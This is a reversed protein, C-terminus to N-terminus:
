GCASVLPSPQRLAAPRGLGWAPRPKVTFGSLFKAGEGVQHIAKPIGTARFSASSTQHSLPPTHACLSSSVSSHVFVRCYLRSRHEIAVPRGCRALTATGAARSRCKAAPAAVWMLENRSGAGLGGPRRTQGPAASLVVFNKERDARQCARTARHTDPLSWAGMWHTMVSMCAQTRARRVRTVRRSAGPRHSLMSALTWAAPRSHPDQPLGWRPSPPQSERRCLPPTQQTGAALWRAERSRTSRV